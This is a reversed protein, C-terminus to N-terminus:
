KSDFLFVYGEGDASCTYTGTLECPKLDPYEKAYWANQRELFEVAAMVHNGTNDLEYDWPIYAISDIDSRSDKRRDSRRASVRSGRTNTPGHFKTVISPQYNM